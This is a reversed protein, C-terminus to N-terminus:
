KRRAIYIAAAILVFIGIVLLVQSLEARREPTLAEGVLVNLARQSQELEDQKSAILIEVRNLEAEDHQAFRQPDSDRLAKLANRREVLQQLERLLDNIRNLDDAM